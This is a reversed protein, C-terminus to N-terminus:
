KEQLVIKNKTILLGKPESLDLEALNIEELELYRLFAVIILSELTFDRGKVEAGPFQM